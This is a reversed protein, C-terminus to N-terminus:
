SMRSLIEKPQMRMVTVSSIGVSLVIVALGTLYLLGLSWPDVSIQLDSEEPEREGTLTAGAGGASFGSREEEQATISRDSQQYLSNGIQGAIACSTFYSLGFALAAVLLVEMLYQGVISTKKIGLSLFVGIEHIRTRAWMTLILSLIAASVFIIVLLLTMVLEKLGDLAGAASQYAGDDESVTFATWDFGPLGKVWAIIKEMNLPDDVTVTMENFGRVAPSGDHAIMSPLDMLVRNQIKDYSTVTETASEIEKPSFLGVIEVEIRRGAAGESTLTDGITLGSKEALDKSILAKGSDSEALHRGEVLTLSGSTFLENEESRWVGVAKAMHRFEDTIPITGTFLSLQEFDALTEIAADCAKVGPLNGVAAVMEPSIQKESYILFGAENSDTHLYPNDDSYNTGIIFKGGLNQRIGQQTLETARWISIGTLVFTAMILLITFLLFSKGKKRVVYLFARKIFGM